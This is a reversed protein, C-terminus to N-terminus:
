LLFQGHPEEEWTERLLEMAPQHEECLGVFRFDKNPDLGNCVNALRKKSWQYNGFKTAVYVRYSLQRPAIVEGVIWGLIVSLHKQKPVARTTVLAGNPWADYDKRLRIVTEKPLVLKIM